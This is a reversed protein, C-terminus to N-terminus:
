ASAAALWKGRATRGGAAIDQTWGGEAAGQRGSRRGAGEVACGPAQDKTWGRRQARAHRPGIQRAPRM